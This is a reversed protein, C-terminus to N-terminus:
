VSEKQVPAEDLIAAALAEAEGERMNVVRVGEAPLPSGAGHFLWRVARPFCAAIVTDGGDQGALEALRPDQRAAMECLDPVAEFARGSEALRDLVANKVEAPIIRAYACHCYIIRKDSM